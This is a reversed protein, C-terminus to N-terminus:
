AEVIYIKHRKIKAKGKITLSFNVFADIKHLEFTYRNYGSLRISIVEYTNGNFVAQLM